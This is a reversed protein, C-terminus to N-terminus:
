NYKALHFSMGDCWIGPGPGIFSGDMRMMDTWINFTWDKNGCSFTFSKGNRVGSVVPTPGYSSVGHFYEPDLVLVDLVKMTIKAQVSGDLKHDYVFITISWTVKALREGDDECCEFSQGNGTWKGMINDPTSPMEAWVFSMGSDKPLENKKQAEDRTSNAFPMDNVLRSISSTKWSDVVIDWFPKKEPKEPTQGTVITNIINDFFGHIFSSGKQWADSGTAASAASYDQGMAATGAVFTSSLWKAAVRNAAMPKQTSDNKTNPSPTEACASISAACNIATTLKQQVDSISQNHVRWQNGSSAEDMPLEIGTIVPSEWGTFMVKPKLSATSTIKNLDGALRQNYSSVLRDIAAVATMDLSMSVEGTMTGLEISKSSGNIISEVDAKISLFDALMNTLCANLTPDTVAGGSLEELCELHYRSDQLLQIIDDLYELTATGPTGGAIPLDTIQLGEITNTTVNATGSSQVVQVGVMGARFIETEPDIYAPVSVTISTATPNAVPVSV